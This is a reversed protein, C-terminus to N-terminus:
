KNNYTHTSGQAGAGGGGGLILDDAIDDDGMSITIFVCVDRAVEVTTTTNEFSIACITSCDNGITNGNYKFLQPLSIAEGKTM